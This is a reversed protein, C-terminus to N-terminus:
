TKGIPKVILSDVQKILADITFVHDAVSTTQSTILSDLRDFVQEEVVLNETSEKWFPSHYLMANKIHLQAYKLAIKSQDFHETEAYMEAIELEAHALNKLAFNFDKNIDHSNFSDKALSAHLAEM